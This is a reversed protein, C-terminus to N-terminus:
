TDRLLVPCLFCEYCYILITYIPCFNGLSRDLSFNFSQETGVNLGLYLLNQPLDDHFYGFEWRRIDCIGLLLKYSRNVSHHFQIWNWVSAHPALNELSELFWLCLFWCKTYMVFFWFCLFWCKTYMVWTSWMFDFHLHWSISWSYKVLYSWLSIGL